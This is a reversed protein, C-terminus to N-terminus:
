APLSFSLPDAVHCARLLHLAFSHEHCSRAGAENPDGSMVFFREDRFREIGPLAVVLVDPDVARNFLRSLTACIEM